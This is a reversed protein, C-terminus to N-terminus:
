DPPYPWLNEVTRRVAEPIEKELYFSEGSRLSEKAITHAYFNHEKPVFIFEIEQFGKKLSQIDTIIAGIVSKVTFLSQCKKIVTKSDGLVTLKNVGLRIGLKIAQLGAYAEATFPDAINSHTVAQSALIERNENRAIIGSASRFGLRDYAADFHITTWGRKYLQQLNGFSHLTLTRVKSIALETTYASIKKAIESGSMLRKEYILHNRSFWIFWLCCCFLHLQEETGRDFVWTFWGWINNINQNLVWSLNLKRIKLNIFSPIYDWSIRWITMKIKTPIHLKWLKNYFTKTEAQLSLDTPDLNTGHLLKYASRVSFEVTPEGRWVQLDEQDTEALPIKLIQEAVVPQFTNRILETKWSRSTPEILDSVLEVNVNNAQITIRDAPIGPIWSDGCISIQDGRGVRWCRGKNLLGKAAWI